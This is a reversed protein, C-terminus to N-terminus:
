LASDLNARLASMDAGLAHLAAAASPNDLLALMLHEITMYEHRESIARQYAQNISLELDRDFM